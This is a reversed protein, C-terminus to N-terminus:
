RHVAALSVAAASVAINGLILTISVWEATSLRREPVTIVDGPKLSSVRGIPRTGGGQSLVRAGGADGTRTPGGALNIYEQPRSDPSLQYYGPRMVAGGVMVQERRSPVVLTDGPAMRVDEHAGGTIAPLDVPILRRMGNADTRSL